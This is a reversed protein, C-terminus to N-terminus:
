WVSEGQLVEQPPGVQSLNGWALWSASGLSILAGILCAAGLGFMWKGKGGLEAARTEESNVSILFRQGKAGSPPAGISRDEGVVGLVYIEADVPLHVEQFRRGLTVDEGVKVPICKDATAHREYRDIAQVGEIIAGDPVVRARGSGDEIEFSAFMTSSLECATRRVRYAAKRSPDYELIEYDREISAAFHACPVRSLDGMLPTACRLRGKVEVLSGPALKGVKGAPTTETARMLSMDKRSAHWGWFLLAASPALLVGFLVLWPVM